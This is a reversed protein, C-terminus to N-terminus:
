GKRVAGQIIGSVRCGVILVNGVVAMAMIVVVGIILCLLMSMIGDIMRVLEGEKGTGSDRRHHWQRLAPRRKSM